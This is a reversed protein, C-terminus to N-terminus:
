FLSPQQAGRLVPCSTTAALRVQELNADGTDRSRKLQLAGRKLLQVNGAAEDMSEYVAVFLPKGAALTRLGANLTGGTPGAEIVIMARSLAIIVENRSMARFTQWGASPEFQSVVLVRSWDWVPRLERRVRFHDVGEPLVLITTGGAQLAARHAVADVGAANGSIVTLGLAAARIACEQATQLGKESAKRSGCFGVGPLDLLAVNGMVSLPPAKNGLATSVAAPYSASEPLLQSVRTLDGM